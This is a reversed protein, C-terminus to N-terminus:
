NGLEEKLVKQMHEWANKSADADYTNRVDAFFGHKVGPYRIVEHKVGAAKLGAELASTQEKSVAHDLDGVMYLVRGGHKAIGPSLNVTPEPQSLSIETNTLWGGYFSVCVALDLQTAALFAIHGGLSFGVIGIKPIVDKRGRLYQLLSQVDNVVDERKLQHLLEFGKDRGAEDYPLQVGPASRHYFDFTAAVYGLKALRRTIDMIHETMGFLEGCVICAPYKGEQAPRAVYIGMSSASGGVAIQLTETTISNEM